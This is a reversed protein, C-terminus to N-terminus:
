KQVSIPVAPSIGFGLTVQAYYDDSHLDPVQVQVVLIGPMTSSMATSQINAPLGGITASIPQSLVARQGAVPVHGPAVPPYIGGQGTLELLVTDGPAVPNTPSVVSGDLKYAVAPNSTATLKSAVVTIITTLINSNPDSVAVSVPGPALNFPLQTEIVVPSVSALPLPVGNITVQYGGLTAPWPFDVATITQGNTDFSGFINVLAGAAIDPPNSDFIQSVSIPASGLETGLNFVATTGAGPVSLTGFQNSIGSPLQTPDATVTVTAPTTGTSPTYTVGTPPTGFAFALQAGTSGVTIQQSQTATAGAPFNFQLSQPTVTLNAPASNPVLTVNITATASGAALGIQTQQIGSLGTANGTLTITAPTLGGTPSVQLWSPFSGNGVPQVFFPVNDAASGFATKQVLSATLTATGMGTSPDAQIQVSSPVSWTSQGGNSVALLKYSEKAGPTIILLPDVTSQQGPTYTVAVQAPTTGETQSVSVTSPTVIHFELPDGSSTLSITKTSPLYNFNPGLASNYLLYTADVQFEDTTDTTMDIKMISADVAGGPGFVRRSGSIAAGPENESGAVYLAQLSVTDVPDGVRRPAVMKKQFWFGTRNAGASFAVFNSDLLMAGNASFKLVGIGPVGVAGGINNETLASEQESHGAVYLNGNADVTVASGDGISSENGLYTSFVFQTGSPNLKTLFGASQQPPTGFAAGATIPFPRPGGPGGMSTSGTVYVAGTADVAIALANDSQSGGLFTSFLPTSGEASLRLVFADTQGGGYVTQAAGPTTVFSGYPNTAGAIYSTGTADIAIAEPTSGPIFTSYVPATGHPNLELAFGTSTSATGTFAGPTTPFSTNASGTIYADGTSDVAIAQTSLSECSGLLASYVFATGAANLKTAFCQGPASSSPNYAGSTVPFDSSSTLGTLYAAGVSDVQIGAPSDSQSGGFYVSYLITLGRPDMKTVFVYQSTADMTSPLATSTRPFNTSTTTGAVYVNGASDTTVTAAADLESGGLVSMYELVPDIVLPRKADYAGLAFGAEGGERIEFRVAVVRRQGAIEQYAVPAKLRFDGRENRALLAGDHDITVSHAGRLAFRISQTAVGPAVAFDYEMGEPSGHMVIDIGEYIGTRRLTGYQPVTRWQSKPGILYSSHGPLVNGPTWASARTGSFRLAIGNLSIEDGSVRAVRGAARGMFEGPVASPEFIVPLAITNASAASLATGTLVPMLSAIIFLGGFVSNFRSM